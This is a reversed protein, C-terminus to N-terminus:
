DLQNLSAAVLYVLFDRVLSKVIEVSFGSNPPTNIQNINQLIQFSSASKLKENDILEEFESLQFEAM